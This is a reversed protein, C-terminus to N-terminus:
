VEEVTYERSGNWSIKWRSGFRLGQVMQPHFAVLCFGEQRRVSPYIIERGGEARLERTLKQGLPYATKPETGLIGENRPLGRADHFPCAFEAFLEQYIVEDKYMSPKEEGSKEMRRIHQYAVEEIATDHELACYWVGRADDNFRGAGGKRSLIFAKHIIRADGYALEKYADLKLLKSDVRERILKRIALDDEDDISLSFVPSEEHALRFTKVPESIEVVPLTPFSTM